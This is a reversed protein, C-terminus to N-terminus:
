KERYGQVLLKWSNQKAENESKLIEHKKRQTIVFFSTSLAKLTM